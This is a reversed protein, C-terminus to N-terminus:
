SSYLMSFLAPVFLAAEELAAALVEVIEPIKFVVFFVAVADTLAGGFDTFVVVTFVVVTFFCLAPFAAAGLGGLVAGTFATLFAAGELATLAAPSEAADFDTFFVGTFFGEPM